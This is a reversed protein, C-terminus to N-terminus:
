HLVFLAKGYHKVITVLQTWTQYVKSKEKPQVESIVQKVTRIEEKIEDILTPSSIKQTFFRPSPTPSPDIIPYGVIPYDVIPYGSDIPVPVEPAPYGEDAYVTTTTCLLILITILQIVKNM